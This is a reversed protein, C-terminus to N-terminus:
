WAFPRWRSPPLLRRMDADLRWVEHADADLRKVAFPALRSLQGGASYAPESIGRAPCRSSAIVACLMLTVLTRAALRPLQEEREPPLARPPGAGDPGRLRKQRGFSFSRTWSIGRRRHPVRYLIGACATPSASRATASGPQWMLLRPWSPSCAPRSPTVYRIPRFALRSASEGPRACSRRTCATMAGPVANRGHRQPM